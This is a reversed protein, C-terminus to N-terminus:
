WGDRRGGCDGRLAGKEWDRPSALAAEESCTGEQRGAERNGGEWGDGVSCSIKASFTLM